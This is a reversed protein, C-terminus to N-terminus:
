SVSALLTRLRIAQTIVWRDIDNILGDREAIHIFSGAPILEGTADLMRLLLEYQEIRGTRLDIIPQAYWAFRGEDLAERIWAAWAM